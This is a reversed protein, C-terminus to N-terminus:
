ELELSRRRRFESRANSVFDALLAVLIGLLLGLFGSGMFILSKKPAFPHPSELPAQILQTPQFVMFDGEAFLARQRDSERTQELNVPSTSEFMEGPAYDAWQIRRIDRSESELATSIGTLQAKLEQELYGIRDKLALVSNKIILVSLRDDRTETVQVPPGVSELAELHARLYTFESQALQLKVQVNEIKEELVKATDALSSVAQEIDSIRPRLSQALIERHEAVLRDAAGQMIGIYLGSYERSAKASLTILDSGKPSDISVAKSLDEFNLNKETTGIIERAVQPILVVRLKAQAAQVAQMLRNHPDSGRYEVSRNLESPPPGIRIISTYEYYTPALAVYAAGAAICAFFIALFLWRREAIKYYIDLISIEDAPAAYSHQSPLTQRPQEAPNTMASRSHKQYEGAM